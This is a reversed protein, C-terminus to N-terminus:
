ASNAVIRRSSGSNCYGCQARRLVTFLLLPLIAVYVAANLFLHLVVVDIQTGLIGHPDAVGTSLLLEIRVIHEAIHYTQLITGVVFSTRLLTPTSTWFEARRGYLVLLVVLGLWLAGNFLFHVWEFDALAGLLGRPHEQHWAFKQTTQLVHEFVHFGQILILSWAGTRVMTKADLNARMM